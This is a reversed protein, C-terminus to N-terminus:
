GTSCKAGSLRAPFLAAANGYNIASRLDPTLPSEDLERTFHVHNGRAYPWDSGFLIRDPSALELLSPLTFRASSLATDFWMTRLTAIVRERDMARGDADEVLGAVRGAAYPLFGGAHSAIVKLHCHRDLTGLRVLQVLARTTDLLFDVVFPPVGPVPPLGEPATPHIFVVAGRRDLEAMVPEWAPDGVYTGNVNTLLIVGDAGLVDFAHEIEALADDVGPLPLSAFFGFRGPHKRALDASFENVARALRATRGPDGKVFVGPCGVSTIATAVSLQDMVDLALDASWDPVAQGGFYGTERLSRAWAPPVIHHHTDVRAITM